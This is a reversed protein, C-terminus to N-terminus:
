HIHVLSSLLVGVLEQNFRSSIMQFPLPQDLSAIDLLVVSTASGWRVIRSNRSNGLTHTDFKLSALAGISSVTAKLMHFCWLMLPLALLATRSRLSGPLEASDEQSLAEPVCTRCPSGARSPALNDTADM